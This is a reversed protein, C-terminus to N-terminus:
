HFIEDDEIDEDFDIDVTHHALDADQMLDDDWEHLGTLEMFELQLSELEDAQLVAYDYFRNRINELTCLRLRLMYFFSM